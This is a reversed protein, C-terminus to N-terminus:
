KNVLVFNYLEKEDLLFLGLFNKTNTLPNSKKELAEKFKFYIIIFCGIFLVIELKKFNVELAQINQLYTKIYPRSIKESRLFSHKIIKAVMRLYDKFIIRM